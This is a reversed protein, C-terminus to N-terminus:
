NCHGSRIFCRPRPPNAKEVKLFIDMSISGKQKSLVTTGDGVLISIPETNKISDIDFWGINNTMPFLAGSDIYWTGSLKQDSGQAM